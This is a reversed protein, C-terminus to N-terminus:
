VQQSWLNVSGHTISLTIPVRKERARMYQASRPPPLILDETEGLMACDQCIHASTDIYRQVTKDFAGSLARRGDPSWAVSWVRGTHGLSRIDKASHRLFVDYQFEADM